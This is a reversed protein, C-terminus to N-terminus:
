PKRMRKTYNDWHQREEFDPLSLKWNRSSDQM